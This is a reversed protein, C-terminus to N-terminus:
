AQGEGSVATQESPENISEYPRLLETLESSSEVVQGPPMHLWSELRIILTGAEPHNKLISLIQGPATDDALTLRTTWYNILLSELEARKHPEITGDCAAKVLPKLTDAITPKSYESNMAAQGTAKAKGWLLALGIIWIVVLIDLKTWYRMWGPIALMNPKSPELKGAPLTSTVEVEISPINSTSEAPNKRKLSKALDYRGPELGTFELNYRFSDGHRFTDAVRVVIKALPDTTAVAELEGGPILIQDVEGVMGVTVSTKNGTVQANGIAFLCNVALIVAILSLIKRQNM